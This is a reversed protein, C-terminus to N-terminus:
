GIIGTLKLDAILSGLVDAIENISTSNADYARDTSVNTITYASSQVVPTTGYFGIKSTIAGGLSVSDNSADLFILNTDTDGEVRFDTTPDGGENFIVNGANTTISQKITSGYILDEIYLGYENVITGGSVSLPSKYNFGYYSGIEVGTAILAYSEVGKATTITTINGVSYLLDGYSGVVTQLGVELGVSLNNGAVSWGTLIVGMQGGYTEDISGATEGTIGFSLGQIFINSTFIKNTEIIGSLATASVESVSPVPYTALITGRAYIGYNNTTAGEVADIYLGYMSDVTAGAAKGITIRQGYATTTTGTGGLSVDIESGLVVDAGGNSIASFASGRLLPTTGSGTNSVGAVLGFVETLVTSQNQINYVGGQITNLTGATNTVASSIGIIADSTVGPANYELVGYFTIPDSASDVTPVHTLSVSLQPQNGDAIDTITYTLDVPGTITDGIDNVKGDLATQLDTQSSLTGTITGWAAGSSSSGAIDLNGAFPNFKYAM